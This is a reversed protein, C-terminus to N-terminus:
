RRKPNGQPLGREGGLGAREPPRRRTRVRWLDHGSPFRPRPDDSVSLRGEFEVLVRRSPTWASSHVHFRIDCSVRKFLFGKANRVFTLGHGSDKCSAEECAIKDVGLDGELVNQMPM